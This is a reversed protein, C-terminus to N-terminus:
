KKKVASVILRGCCYQQRYLRGLRRVAIRNLAPSDIRAFRNCRLRLLLQTIWDEREFGRMMFEDFYPQLMTQIDDFSFHQYHKDIVKKEVCPVTLVLLAGPDLLKAVNAVFCPLMTPPIHELVEILSASHFSEALNDINGSYFTATPTFIRAWNIARMDSDIGFIQCNAFGFIRTLHQVLAGDGCGIDIHRWSSATQQVVPRLQDAVLNLAAVYSPAFGWHRSLFLRGHPEPIYHYPFSYQDAQIDNPQLSLTM